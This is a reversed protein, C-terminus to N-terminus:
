LYLRKTASAAKQAKVKIYEWEVRFLSWMFRRTLEVCGTHLVSTVHHLLLMCHDTETNAPPFPPQMSMVCIASLRIMLTVASYLGRVWCYSSTSRWM